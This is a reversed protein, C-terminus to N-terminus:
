ILTKNDVIIKKYLNQREGSNVQQLHSFYQLFIAKLSQSETIESTTLGLTPKREATM